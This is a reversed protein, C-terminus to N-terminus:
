RQLFISENASTEKVNWARLFPQRFQIRQHRLFTKPIIAFLRLFGDVFGIRKSFFDLRQMLASFCSSSKLTM